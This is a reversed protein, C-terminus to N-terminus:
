YGFKSALDIKDDSKRAGLDAQRLSGYGMILSNDWNIHGDRNQYNAALNVLANVAVSNEGGSAWNTLSLQSFNLSTLGSVRWLTDADDQAHSLNFLGMLMSILIIRKMTNM